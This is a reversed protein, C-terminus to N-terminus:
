SGCHSVLATALGYILGGAGLMYSVVQAILKRRDKRGDIKDLGDAERLRIDSDTQARATARRDDLLRLLIDATSQPIEATTTTNKTLEDRVTKIRQDMEITLARRLEEFKELNEARLEDVTDLTASTVEQVRQTRANVVDLRDAPRSIPHPPTKPPPTFIPTGEVPTKWGASIEKSRPIAPIGIARQVKTPPVKRPYRDRDEPDDTM